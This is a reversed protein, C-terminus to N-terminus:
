NEEKIDILISIGKGKKRYLRSKGVAILEETLPIFEEEVQLSLKTLESFSDEQQLLAIM